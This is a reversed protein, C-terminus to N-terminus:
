EVYDDYITIVLYDVHTEIILEQGINCMFENLEDITEFNTLVYDTHYRTKQECNYYKKKAKTMYNRLISGDRDPRAVKIYCKM